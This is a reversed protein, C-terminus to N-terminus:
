IIFNQQSIETKKRKGGKESVQTEWVWGLALLSGKFSEKV